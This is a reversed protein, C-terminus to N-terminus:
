EGPVLGADYDALTALNRAEATGRYWYPGVKVFVDSKSRRLDRPVPESQRTEREERYRELKQWQNM